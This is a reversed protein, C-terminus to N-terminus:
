RGNGTPLTVTVKAGLRRLARLSRELALSSQGTEMKALYSRDIGLEEALKEQTLGRERRAGAIARGLDGPSRIGWTAISEENTPM